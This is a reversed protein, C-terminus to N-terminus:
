GSPPHPTLATALFHVLIRTSINFDHSILWTPQLQPTRGTGRLSDDMSSSLPLLALTLHDFAAVAKLDGSSQCSHTCSPAIIARITCFM